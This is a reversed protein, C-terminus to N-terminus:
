QRSDASCGGGCANSPAGVCGVSESNWDECNYQCRCCQGGLEYSCGSGGPKVCAGAADAAYGNTCQTCRGAGCAVCNPDVSSCRVCATGRSNTGYSAFCDTCLGGACATCSSDITACLICATGGRDTGYLAACATCAGGACATCDLDISNCKICATGGANTGYGAACQTCKGVGCATCRPDISACATCSSGGASPGYGDRCKVCGFYQPGDCGCLACNAIVEGCTPLGGPDTAAGEGGGGGIPVCATRRQNLTYGSQCLTCWAEPADPNCGCWRCHAIAASCKGFRPEEGAVPAAALLLLAFLASRTVM